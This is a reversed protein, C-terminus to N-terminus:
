KPLSKVIVPNDIIKRTTILDGYGGEWSNLVKGKTDEIEYYDTEHTTVAVIYKKM